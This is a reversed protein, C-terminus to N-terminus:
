PVGTGAASFPLVIIELRRPLHNSQEMKGALPLNGYLLLAHLCDVNRERCVLDRKYTLQIYTLTNSPICAVSHFLLFQLFEPLATREILYVWNRIYPGRKDRSFYDIYAFFWIVLFIVFFVMYRFDMYASNTTVVTYTTQDDDSLHYPCKRSDTDSTNRGGIEWKSKEACSM